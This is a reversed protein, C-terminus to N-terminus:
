RKKQSRALGREITRPHVLLNFREQIRNVLDAAKLSSNEQRARRVFEIVEATLKRAQKPGRKLPALGPLGAAQFAAQAQYFTPRSFGFSSAATSISHGDKEVRRLMEYKVQVLDRPDFFDDSAFLEDTVSKPRPNLCGQERLSQLKADDPRKPMADTFIIVGNVNLNDVRKQRCGKCVYPSQIGKHHEIRGPPLFRSPPIGKVDAANNYKCNPGGIRM